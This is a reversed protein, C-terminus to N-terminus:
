AARSDVDFDLEKTALAARDAARLLANATRGHRGLSAVGFGLRPRESHDRFINAVAGRLRRAVIRAGPEGTEPLILAFKGRGLSAVVDVGRKEGILIRGARELLPNGPQQRFDYRDPSGIQAVVISLRRSGRKARALESALERRFSHEDLVFHDEEM